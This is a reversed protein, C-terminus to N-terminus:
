PVQRHRLFELKTLPYARLEAGLHEVYEVMGPEGIGIASGAAGCCIGGCTRAITKSSDRRIGLSRIGHETRSPGAGNLQAQLKAELDSRSNVFVTLFPALSVEPGKQNM